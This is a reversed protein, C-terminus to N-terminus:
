IGHEMEERMMKQFCKGLRFLANENFHKSIFQTGGPVALAPCGSLNPLSLYRLDEYSDCFKKYEDDDSSISGAPTMVADYEKFARDLEDKIMRRIKLSKDFYSDYKEKTLALMGILTFLKTEFVFCETRSNVYIDEPNSYNETRYGFKIGDFRAISNSTEAASIIYAAAAAYELYPFDFVGTEAGLAKLRNIETEMLHACASPVGIKVGKLDSENASYSYKETKVIVGDREDYGAILSLAQFGAGIDKCAVGIQEMSAATSVLGFRSVVGYTPKIFFVGNCAAERRIMGNIDCGIGIDASGDAVYDICGFSGTLSVGFENPTTRLLEGAGAAALRDAAASNFPPEFNYLIKSGATSIGNGMFINDDIAIRGIDM